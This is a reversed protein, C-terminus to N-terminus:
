LQHHPQYAGRRRHQPLVRHRGPGLHRRPQDGPCLGGRRRGDIFTPVAIPMPEIVGQGIVIRPPGSQALVPAAVLTVVGLALAMLTQFTASMPRTM